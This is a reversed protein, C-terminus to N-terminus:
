GESQCQCRHPLPRRDREALLRFDGSIDLKPSYLRFIQANAGLLAEANDRKEDPSYRETSYAGGAYTYVIARDTRIFYRGL